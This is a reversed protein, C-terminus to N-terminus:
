LRNRNFKNNMAFKPVHNKRRQRALTTQHVWVPFKTSSQPAHSQRNSRIKDAVIPSGLRAEKSIAM